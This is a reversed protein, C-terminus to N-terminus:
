APIFRMAIGNMCWRKGTPKPGDNFVHGLHGGCRKCHVETRPYGIKYDTSTGIGGALARTFSPWGTKSDFKHASSYLRNSCGACVFTGRRHEKDLRSSFAPETSAKRLVRYAKPSLRKRWEADSRTVPFRKKAEVPSSRFLTYGIGSAVALGGATLLARKSLQM